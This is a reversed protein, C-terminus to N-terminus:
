YRIKFFCHLLILPISVSHCTYMSCKSDGSAGAYETKCVCKLTTCETNPIVDCETGLANVHLPM